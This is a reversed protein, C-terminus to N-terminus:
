NTSKDHGEEKRTHQNQVSGAVGPKRERALGQEILRQRRRDLAERVDRGFGADRIATSSEAVLERDLWTARLREWGRENLVLGAYAVGDRREIGALVEEARAMAPVAEEAGPVALKGDAHVFDVQTDVDWLIRRM